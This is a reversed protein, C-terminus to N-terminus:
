KKTKNMVKAKMKINKKYFVDIVNMMYEPIYKKVENILEDDIGYYSEAISGCICAITDSDGGISLSKRIADEFGNSELFCYIAQPVSEIAKSSFKYNHRLDELDFDLSFYNEEIYKKLNEKSMGMRILYISIAVAEACKISDPNNHSPITAKYSEEKIKDISDFLYGVPGIRMACGNGFSDNNGINNIFDRFGRGFRSRGYKDVGLNMERVGYERLKEDYSSNNLIADAIATTLISDDTVSSNDDFLSINKDLIKVREIYDRKNGDKREKIELIEIYSGAVDGIIAGLM